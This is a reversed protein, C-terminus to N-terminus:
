LKGIMWRPAQVSVDDGVERVMITVQDRLPGFGSTTRYVHLEGVQGAPMYAWQVIREGVATATTNPITRERRQLVLGMAVGFLVGFAAGAYIATGISGSFDGSLLATLLAFPVASFGFIMAFLSGFSGPQM